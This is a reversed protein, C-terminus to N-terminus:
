PSNESKLNYVIINQVIIHAEQSQFKSSSLDHSKKHISSFTDFYQYQTSIQMETKTLANANFDSLIITTEIPGNTNM